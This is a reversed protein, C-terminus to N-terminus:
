SSVGGRIFVKPNALDGLMVFSKQLRASLTGPTIELVSSVDEQPFELVGVLLFPVLSDIDVKKSFERFVNIDFKEPVLWDKFHPMIESRVQLLHKRNKRYFNVLLAILEKSEVPKQGGRSKRLISDAVQSSLQAAIKQDLTLLFFFLAIKELHKDQV